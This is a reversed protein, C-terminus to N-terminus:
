KTLYDRKNLPMVSNLDVDDTQMDWSFVIIDKCDGYSLLRKRIDNELLLINVENSIGSLSVLLALKTKALRAYCQIEGIEKLSLASVSRNVIVLNVENTKKNKLIGLIDPKFDWSSYNTLSKILENNLKSLFTDPIIVDVIEYDDGFKRELFIVLWRQLKKTFKNKDMIM